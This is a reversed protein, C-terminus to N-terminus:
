KEIPELILQVPNIYTEYVWNINKQKNKFYGLELLMQKIDEETLRELQPLTILVKKLIYKKEVSLTNWENQQKKEIKNYAKYNEACEFLKILKGM